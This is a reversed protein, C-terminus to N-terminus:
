NEREREKEREREREREKERDRKRERPHVPRGKRALHPGTHPSPPYMRM